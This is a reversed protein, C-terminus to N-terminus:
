RYEIGHSVLRNVLMLECSGNGRDTRTVSSQWLEENAAPRANILYGSLLLTDGGHVALLARRLNSSGPVIHTNASDQAIQDTGFPVDGSWHFSYWRGGQSWEIFRDVSPDAMYGWGLALDLPALRGAWGTWYRERSLVRAAISYRAVPTIVFDEGGANLRFERMEPEVPAQAPQRTPEIPESSPTGSAERCAAFISVCVIAAVRRM